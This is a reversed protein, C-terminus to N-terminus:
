RHKPVSPVTRNGDLERRLRFDIFLNKYILLSANEKFIWTHKTLNKITKSPKTLFQLFRCVIYNITLFKGFSVCICTSTVRVSHLLRIEQYILLLFKLFIETILKVFGPLEKM